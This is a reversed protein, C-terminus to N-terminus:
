PAGDPKGDAGQFVYVGVEKGFKDKATHCCPCIARCICVCCGCICLLIFFLVLIPVAASSMAQCWLGGTCVCVKGMLNTDSPMTGFGPQLAGPILCESFGAAYKDGQADYNKCEYDENCGEGDDKGVM